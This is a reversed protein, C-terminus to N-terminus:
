NSKLMNVLALEIIQTDSLHGFQPIDRLKKLVNIQTSNLKIYSADAAIQTAQQASLLSILQHIYLPNLTENALVSFEVTSCAKHDTLRIQNELTAKGDIFIEDLQRTASDSTIKGCLKRQEAVTIDTRLTSV